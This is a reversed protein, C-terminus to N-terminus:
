FLSARRYPGESQFNQYRRTRNYSTSCPKVSWVKCRKWLSNSQVGCEAGCEVVVNRGPHANHEWLIVGKCVCKTSGVAGGKVRSGAPGFFMNKGKAPHNANM